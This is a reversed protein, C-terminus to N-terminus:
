NRIVIKDCGLEKAYFLAQEAAKVLDFDPEKSCAIGYNATIHGAGSLDYREIEHRLRESVLEAGKQDTGPLLIAFRGESLHAALDSKRTEKRLIQAVTKLAIDRQINQLIGPEILILALFYRHKKIKEREQNLYDEFVQRQYLQTLPDFTTFRKERVM